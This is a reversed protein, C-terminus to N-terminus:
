VGVKSSEPYFYQRLKEEPTLGDIGAHPKVTNYFNVFRALERARHDRSTFRTKEHWMEMLTRIVREAKGNTRPTKVRTHKQRIGHEACLEAFAHDGTGKYETGNDSYAIEMTYPCEDLVQALFMASSYQTKDPFIGAYLERSYDDIAVFLYEKPMSRDEGELWPLKKTDFHIMEGPYSKEYRKAEKKLREEVEREVKALRRMGYALNKFRHNTSELPAFIGHRALSLVKSVTPRSVGYQDALKQHTLGLVDKKSASWESWMQKRNAVTLEAGRHRNDNTM